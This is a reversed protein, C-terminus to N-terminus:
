SLNKPVIFNFHSPLLEFTATSSQVIEGDINVNVNKKSIVNMKYGQFHECIDTWAYHEGNKYGGILSIAKFKPVAKVLVFDILGDDTISGPAGHYGGGYYEGNAAIAFLYRGEREITGTTTELQIKVDNGIPHILTDFVALDYALSGNVLPWKKFRSMGACVDADLGMSCINLSYQGNCCIADVKKATGEILNEIHLFDEVSGYSKVYDNGSGCPIATIEVNEFGEAGNTVEFLTGDGGAAYFRVSDGKQAEKKVISTAQNREETIYIKYEGTHTSFYNEIEPIYKTARANKGAVPNIIFIHRM